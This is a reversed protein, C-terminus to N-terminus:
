GAGSTLAELRARLERSMDLTRGEITFVLGDGQELRRCRHTKLRLVDGSGLQGEPRSGPAFPKSSRVTVSEGGLSVVRGDGGGQWAVSLGASM